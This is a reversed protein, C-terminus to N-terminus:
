FFYKVKKAHLKQLVLCIYCLLAFLWLCAHLHLISLLLSISSVSMLNFGSSDLVQTLKVYFTELELDDPSSYHKGNSVVTGNTLKTDLPSSSPVMTENGEMNSSPFWRFEIAKESNNPHSTRNSHFSNHIIDKMCYFILM